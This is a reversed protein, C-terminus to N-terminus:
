FHCGARSTIAGWASSPPCARTTQAAFTSPLLLGKGTSTNDLNTVPACAYLVRVEWKARLAGLVPFREIMGRKKRTSDAEEQEEEEV